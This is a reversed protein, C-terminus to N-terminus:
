KLDGDITNAIYNSALVAYYAELQGDLTGFNEPHIPFPISTNKPLEEILTGWILSQEAETLLRMGATGQVFVKTTATCKDPVFDRSKVLLEAIHDVSEPLKEIFSSLGPTKKGVRASSVTRHGMDDYKINFVFCRSGTSGADIVVAYNEHCNAHGSHFYAIALLLLSQCFTHLYGKGCNLM